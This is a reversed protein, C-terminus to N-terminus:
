PAMLFLTHQFVEQIKDKKKQSSNGILINVLDTWTKINFNTWEFGWLRGFGGYELTKKRGADSGFKETM